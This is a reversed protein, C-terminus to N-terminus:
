RRRASKKKHGEQWKTLANIITLAKTHSIDRIRGNEVSPWLAYCGSNLNSFKTLREASFSAVRYAGDAYQLEM